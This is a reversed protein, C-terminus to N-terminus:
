THMVINWQKGRGRLCPVSWPHRGGHVNPQRGAAAARHRPQLYFLGTGRPRNGKKCPYWAIFQRAVM